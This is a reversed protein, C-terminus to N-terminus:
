GRILAQCSARVRTVDIGVPLGEAGALTHLAREALRGAGVENGRAAHTLAAGWQALARWAERHVADSTRWRDEFVEHAHFPLGRNLYDLGLAWAQEDTLGSVDSAPEAADAPDADWPLPRGLRDRPRDTM